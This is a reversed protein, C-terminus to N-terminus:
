VFDPRYGAVGERDATRRECLCVAASASAGRRAQCAVAERQWLVELAM